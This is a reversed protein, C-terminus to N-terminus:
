RLLYKLLNTAAIRNDTLDIYENYYAPDPMAVVLGKGV